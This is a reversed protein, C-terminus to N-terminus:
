LSYDYYSKGNKIVFKYFVNSAAAVINNEIGKLHPKKIKIGSSVQEWLFRKSGNVIMDFLADWEDLMSGTLIIEKPDFINVFNAVWMAIENAMRNLVHFCREDNEQYLRVAEQFSIGLEKEISGKSIRTQLCGRRGCDCLIGNPDTIIHGIEGAINNEGRSLKGNAMEALAIGNGLHVVLFYDPDDITNLFRQAKAFSKVDNDVIINYPYCAKLLSGLNLDKWHFSPSRMVLGTKYNVTGPVSVGIGVLNELRDDPIRGLMYDIAIKIREVVYVPSEEEIEYSEQALINGAGDMLGADIRERLLYIGIILIKQPVIHLMIRQRGVSSGVNQGEMVYGAEMLEAVSRGVSTQSMGMKKAIEVRSIAKENRIIHFIQNINQEKIYQSTSKGAAMIKYLGRKEKYQQKWFLGLM